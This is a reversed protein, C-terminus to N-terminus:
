RVVTVSRRSETHGNRVLLYYVGNPVPQHQDDCRDWEISYTGPAQQTDVLTRVIRGTVDQIRINVAEGATAPDVEYELRMAHNMPNPAVLLMPLGEILLPDDLVSSADEARIAFTDVRLHLASPGVYNHVEITSGGEYLIELWQDAYPVIRAMTIAVTFFVDSMSAVGAEYEPMVLDLISVGDPIDEYDTSLMAIEQVVDGPDPLNGLVTEGMFIQENSGQFYWIYYQQGTIEIGYATGAQLLCLILLLICVRM